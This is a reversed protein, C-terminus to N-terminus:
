DPELTKKCKKQMKASSIAGGGADGLLLVFQQGVRGGFPWHPLLLRNRVKHSPWRHGHPCFDALTPRCDQFSSSMIHITFPGPTVQFQTFSVTFSYSTVMPGHVGEQKNIFEGVITFELWQINKEPVASFKWFSSPIIILNRINSIFWIRVIGNIPIVYEGM